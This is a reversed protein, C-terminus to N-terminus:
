GFNRQPSVSKSMGPPMHFHHSQSALTLLCSFICNSRLWMRNEWWRTNTYPETLKLITCVQYNTGQLNGTSVQILNLLFNEDFMMLDPYLPIFTYSLTFLPFSFYTCLLSSISHPLSLSYLFSLTLDHLLLFLSSLASLINWSMDQFIQWMDYIKQYKERKM